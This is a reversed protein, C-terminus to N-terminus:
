LEFGNSKGYEEQKKQYEAEHTDCLTHIWGGGRISGPAGCEECTVVSMSEAMRALGHIHDDGGNYYFRLGGFKEKVQTAVVQPVADPISRFEATLVREKYEDRYQIGIHKYYEDFTSWNNNKADGIMINYRSADNRQKTTWDIHHQINACLQDIINYWGDGCEFGWCMATETMPKDRGSFILPYKKCLAEDKEQKM